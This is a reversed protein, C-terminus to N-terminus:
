RQPDQHPREIPACNRRGSLVCDQSDRMRSITDALWVGSIILFLLIAVAAGNAIMRHRDDVDDDTHYVYKELDEVPSRRASPAVAFPSRGRSATTGRREFKLIRGTNDDVRPDDSTM